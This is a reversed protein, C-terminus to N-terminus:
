HKRHRVEVKVKAPQHFYANAALGFFVAGGLGFIVTLILFTYVM